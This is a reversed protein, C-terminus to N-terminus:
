TCLFVDSSSARALNSANMPVMLSALAFQPDSSPADASFLPGPYKYSDGQAHRKIYRVALSAIHPPRHISRVEPPAAPPAPYAVPFQCSVLVHPRPSASPSRRNQSTTATMRRSHPANSAGGSSLTAACILVAVNVWARSIVLALCRRM